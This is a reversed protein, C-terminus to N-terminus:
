KVEGEVGFRKIGAERMLTLRTVNEGGEGSSKKKKKRKQKQGNRSAIKAQKVSWREEKDREERRAKPLSVEKNEDERGGEHGGKKTHPFIM